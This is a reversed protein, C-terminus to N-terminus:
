KVSVFVPSAYMLAGDEQVARLYYYTDGEAPGDLEITENYDMTKSAGSWTVDGGSVIEITELPAEASIRVKATLKEGRAANMEGGMATGDISFSVLARTDWVAWTSRAFMGDFIGQRTVRDAWVGTLATSNLPMKGYGSDSCFAKSPYAAHNDTGGTFGMKFGRGLAHQVSANNKFHWARWTRWLKGPYEEREQNGRCQFVEILRHYESPQVKDFPYAFWHPAGSVNTHHPIAMFDQAKSIQRDLTKQLVWLEDEWGNGMLPGEPNQPNVFHYPDTFYYNEHGWKTSKEWGFLTAFEDDRNFEEHAAVIEDWDNVPTHDSSMCYGMNMQDRAFALANRTSYAGDASFETHWHFEGFAAEKGTGSRQWVPNSTVTVSGYGKAGNEIDETTALDKYSVTGQVRSVAHRTADLYIVKTSFVEESRNQGMWNLGVKTGNAFTAANGFRDEPSIVTRIKGDPGPTPECYIYLYCVPGAAVDLVVTTDEVKRYEGDESPAVWISIEDNRGAFHSATSDFRIDIVDGIRMDRELRGRVNAYTTNGFLNGGSSPIEELIEAHSIVFGTKKWRFYRRMNRSRIEFVSGKALPEDLRWRLKWAFTEDLSAYAGPDESIRLGGFIWGTGIVLITVVFLLAFRKM